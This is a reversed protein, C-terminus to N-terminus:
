GYSAGHNHGGCACECKHGKAETCRADCKTSTKVGQVMIFGLTRGCACSAQRGTSTSYDSLVKRWNRRVVRTVEVARSVTVGCKCKATERRNRVTKITEIEDM